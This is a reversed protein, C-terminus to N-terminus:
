KPSFRAASVAATVPFRRMRERPVIRPRDARSQVCVSRCRRAALLRNKADSPAAAVVGYIIAFRCFLKIIGHVSRGFEVASARVASQVSICFARPCKISNFRIIRARNGASQVDRRQSKNKRAPWINQPVSSPGNTSEVRFITSAERQGARGSSEREREREYSDFICEM